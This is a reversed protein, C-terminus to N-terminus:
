PSALMQSSTDIIYRTDLVNKGVLFKRKLHSRDALNVQVLYSDDGIWIKENIFYRQTTGMASKVVDIKVVPKVIVKKQSNEDITEFEVYLVARGNEIRHFPSIHKAHISSSQAGSDIKAFYQLDKNEGIHVTELNGIMKTNVSAPARFPTSAVEKAPIFYGVLSLTLLSLYTFHVRRSAM